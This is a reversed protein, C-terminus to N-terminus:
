LLCGHMLDFMLWIGKHYYENALHYNTCIKLWLQLLSCRPQWNLNRCSQEHAASSLCSPLLNLIMRHHVSPPDHMMPLKNILPDHPPHHFSAPHASLMISSPERMQYINSQNM